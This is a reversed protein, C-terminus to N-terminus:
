LVSVIDTCPAVPNSFSAINRYCVIWSFNGIGIPFKQPGEVFKRMGRKSTRIELYSQPLTFKLTCAWILKGILEQVM